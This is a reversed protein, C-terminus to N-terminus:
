ARVRMAHRILSNKTEKLRVNKQNVKKKMGGKREREGGKEM